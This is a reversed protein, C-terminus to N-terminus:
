GPSSFAFSAAAMASTFAPDVTTTSTSVRRTGPLRCERQSPLGASLGPSICRQAASMGAVDPEGDDATTGSAGPRNDVIVPQGPIATMADKIARATADVPGGAVSNVIISIPRSPFSSGRGFCLAAPLLLIWPATRFLRM